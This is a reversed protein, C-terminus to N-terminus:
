AVPQLGEATGQDVTSGRDTSDSQAQITSDTSAHTDGKYLSSNIREKFLQVTRQGIAKRAPKNDVIEGAAERTVDEIMAAIVSPTDKLDIEKDDRLALVHDIVHELRMATVWELAIAEANALQERKSADMEVAPRGRESFEARKHKAIIRNGRWDIVEIPPRLVVGERIKPEIIGNRTSQTSPKDREADIASVDTPISVYDVFEFGLGICVGAAYQVNLWSDGKEGGVQVDFAIFKLSPGYTPSMGQQKGGYAEGYVTCSQTDGFREAFATTLVATDFLAVFREYSEGGSFFHLKGEKWSVHASTGHIKELAYCTKFHLIDQAKYLNDIHMYGM